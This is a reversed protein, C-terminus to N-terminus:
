FCAMIRSLQFIIAHDRMAVETSQLQTYFAELITDIAATLPGLFLSINNVFQKLPNQWLHMDKRYKDGETSTDLPESVAYSELIM